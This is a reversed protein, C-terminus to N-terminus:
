CLFLKYKPFSLHYPSLEVLLLEYVLKRNTGSKIVENFVNSPWKRRPLRERRATELFYSLKKSRRAYLQMTLARWTKM